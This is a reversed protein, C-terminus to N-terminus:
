RRSHRIRRTAKKTKRHAKRHRRRRGGAQNSAMGNMGANLLGGNNKRTNNAGKFFNMIADM